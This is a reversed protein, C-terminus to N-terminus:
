SGLPIARSIRRVFSDSVTLADLFLNAAAYLDDTQSELVTNLLELRAAHAPALFPTQKAREVGMELHQWCELAWRANTSRVAEDVTMSYGPAGAKVPYFPAWSDGRGLHINSPPFGAAYMFTTCVFCSAVKTTQSGVAIEFPTCWPGIAVADYVSQIMGHTYGVVGGAVPKTASMGDIPSGDNLLGWPANTQDLGAKPYSYAPPRWRSGFARDPVNYRMTSKVSGKNTFPVDVFGTYAGFGQYGVDTDHSAIERLQQAAAASPTAHRSAFPASAGGAAGTILSGMEWDPAKTVAIHQDDEGVGIRLCAVADETEKEDAPKSPDWSFEVPQGVALRGVCFGVTVLTAILDADTRYQLSPDTASGPSDDLISRQVRFM